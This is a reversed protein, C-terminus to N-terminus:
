RRTPGSISMGSAIGNISMLWLWPVERAASVSVQEPISLGNEEVWITIEGTKTRGLQGAAGIIDGLDLM